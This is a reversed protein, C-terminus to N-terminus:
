TRMARPESSESESEEEQADTVWWWGGDEVEYNPCARLDAAGGDVVDVEGAIERVWVEALNLGGRSAVHFNEEVTDNRFRLNFQSEAPSRSVNRM